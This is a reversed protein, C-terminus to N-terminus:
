NLIPLDITDEGTKYIEQASSWQDGEDHINLMALPWQSFTMLMRSLGNDTTQKCTLPLCLILLRGLLLLRSM